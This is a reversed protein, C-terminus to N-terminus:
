SLAAEFVTMQYLPVEFTEQSMNSAAVTSGILDEKNEDPKEERM